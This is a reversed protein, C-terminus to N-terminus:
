GEYVRKKEKTKGYDICHTICEEIYPHITKLVYIDKNIINHKHENSQSFIYPFSPLLHSAIYIFIQIFNLIYLITTHIIGSLIIKSKIKIRIMFFLEKRLGSNYHELMNVHTIQWPFLFSIPNCRLFNMSLTNQNFVDFLLSFSCQLSIREFYSIKFNM